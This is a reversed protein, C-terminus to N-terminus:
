MVQINIKVQHPLGEIKIHMSLSTEQSQLKLLKLNRSAVLYNSVPIM